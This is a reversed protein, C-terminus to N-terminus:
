ESQVVTKRQLGRLNEPIFSVSSGDDRHLEIQQFSLTRLVGPIHEGHTTIAVVPQDQLQLLSQWEGELTSYDQAVLQSWGQDLENLITELILERSQPGPCIQEIATAQTLGLQQFEEATQNINLGLGAVIVHRQVGASQEILLGAIKREQVLIDNPWKL